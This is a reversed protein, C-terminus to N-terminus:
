YLRRKELELNLDAHIGCRKLNECLRSALCFAGWKTIGVIINLNIFPTWPQIEFKLSCPRQKGGFPRCAIDGFVGPIEFKILFPHQVISVPSLISTLREVEADHQSVVAVKELSIPDLIM